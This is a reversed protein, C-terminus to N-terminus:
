VNNNNLIEKKANFWHKIDKGNPCGDNLWLQYAKEQTLTQFDANEWFYKCSKTKSNYPVSGFFDRRGYVVM